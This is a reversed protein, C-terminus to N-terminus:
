ASSVRRKLTETHEQLMQLAMFVEHRESASLPREPEPELGPDVAVMQSLESLAAQLGVVGYLLESTDRLPQQPQDAGDVEKLQTRYVDLM